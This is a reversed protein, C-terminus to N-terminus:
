AAEYLLNWRIISTAGWAFPHSVSVTPWVAGTPGTAFIVGGAGSAMAYGAYQAGTGGNIFQGSGMFSSVNTSNVPLGLTFNGGGFATTSGMIFEGFYHVHKGTKLYRAVIGTANGLAGGVLTPTISIYAGPLGTALVGEVDLALEHMDTPVDAPDSPDPFRFAYVPTTGM